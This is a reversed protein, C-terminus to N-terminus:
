GANVDKGFKSILSSVWEVLPKAEIARVFTKGSFAGIAIFVKGNHIDTFAAAHTEGEQLPIEELYKKLFAEGAGLERKIAPLQTKIIM